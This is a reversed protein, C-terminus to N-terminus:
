FIINLPLNKLRSLAYSQEQIEILNDSKLLQRGNRGLYDYEFLVFEPPYLPVVGSRMDFVHIASETLTSARRLVLYNSM